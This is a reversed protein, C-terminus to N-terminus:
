MTSYTFIYVHVRLTPLHHYQFCSFHFNVCAIVLPSSITDVNLFRHLITLLRLHTPLKQQYRVQLVKKKGGVLYQLQTSTLRFFTNSSSFFTGDKRLLNGCLITHERPTGLPPAYPFPPFSIMPSRVAQQYSIAALWQRKTEKCDADFLVCSSGDLSRVSFAFGNMMKIEFKSLDYENLILGTGIDTVRIKGDLLVLRRKLWSKLGESDQELRLLLSEMIVGKQHSITMESIKKKAELITNEHVLTSM